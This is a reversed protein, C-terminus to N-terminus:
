LMSCLFGRLTRRPSERDGRQVFGLVENWVEKDKKVHRKWNTRLGLQLGEKEEDKRGNGGGGVGGSGGNSLPSKGRSGSSLIHHPKPPPKPPPSVM